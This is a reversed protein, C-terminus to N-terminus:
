HHGGSGPAHTHSEPLLHKMEFASIMPVLRLFLFFLTFFL